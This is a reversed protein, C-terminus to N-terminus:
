WGGGGGNGDVGGGVGACFGDVAGIRVSLYGRYDLCVVDM